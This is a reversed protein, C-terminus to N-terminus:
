GGWQEAMAAAIGTYTASRDRKRTPSPPMFFMREREKTPLALAERKVDNTPLLPSLNWLGLGTKKKEPHGFMYPQVYQQSTCVWRIVPWIVSLPNEICCGVSAVDKAKQWLQLIWKLQDEREQTGGYTGNGSLSVATCTPHLIIIDWPKEYLAVEVDMQLHPGGNRAPILDNSGADHGRAIFADRVVGSEKCGVLVKV